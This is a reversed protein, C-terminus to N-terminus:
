FAILPRKGEQTRSTRSKLLIIIVVIIIIIIIIVIIFVAFNKFNIAAYFLDTVLVLSDSPRCRMFFSRLMQRLLAIRTM